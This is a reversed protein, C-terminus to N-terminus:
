PKHIINFLNYQLIDFIGYCYKSFSFSSPLDCHLNVYAKYIYKLDVNSKYRWFYKMQRSQLYTSTLWCHKLMWRIDQREFALRTTPQGTSGGGEQPRKGGAWVDPQQYSSLPFIITKFVSSFVKLMTMTQMWDSLSLEDAM